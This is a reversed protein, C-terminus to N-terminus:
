KKVWLAQALIEYDRLGEPPVVNSGLVSNQLRPDVFPHGIHSSATFLSITVLQIKVLPM